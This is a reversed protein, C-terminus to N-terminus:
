LATPLMAIHVSVVIAVFILLGRIVLNEMIYFLSLMIMFWLFAITIIKQRKKIGRGELYNRIFEGVVKNHILWRHLRESGRFYCAAALLLFPTTPLVPIIIGIIGIILFLTGIIIFFVRKM